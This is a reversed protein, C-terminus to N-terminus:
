AAKKKLSRSKRKRFVRYRKRPEFKQGVVRGPSKGRSQPQPAIIGLRLFVGSALRRMTAPTLKRTKLWSPWSVEKSEVLPRASFLLWMATAVIEVWLGVREQAGSGHFQGAVLGIEGKQFRISHEIGFREGYLTSADALKPAASTGIYILWLPRQYRRSGDARYEIVRYLVLAQEPWNYMRVDMWQSVECYAGEEGEVRQRADPEPLTRGDCLKIKKGRVCPRGRGSYPPPPLYFKRKSSVRGLVNIGQERLPKLTPRNTYQADVALLDEPQWGNKEVYAVVQRAGFEAPASEVEIVAIELPLQWSGEGVRQSLLSLGHGVRMGEGSHVYGLRVTETKPREYNTADLVHVRWGCVRAKAQELDEQWHKLWERRAQRLEHISSTPAARELSAYISSWHYGFVPSLVAEFPTAIRPGICLADLLNLLAQSSTAFSEKVRQRLDRIIAERNSDRM